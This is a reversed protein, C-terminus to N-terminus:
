FIRIHSGYEIEFGEPAVRKEPDPSSQEWERLVATRDVERKTKVYADPIDDIDLLVTVSPQTNNQLRVRARPSRIIVQDFSEMCHQIYDKLRTASATYAKRMAKLRNEESKAAEADAEQEKVLLAMRTVKEAFEGEMNDLREEIGENIEGGAEVILMGITDLEVGIEWLKM